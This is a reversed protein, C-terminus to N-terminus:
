LCVLLFCQICLINMVDTYMTYFGIKGNASLYMIFSKSFFLSNDSISDRASTPRRTQAPTTPTRVSPATNTCPSQVFMCHELYIFSSGDLLSLNYVPPERAYLNCMTCKENVRRIPQGHPM